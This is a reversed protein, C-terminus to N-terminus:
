TRRHYRLDGTPLTTTEYRQDHARHHHFNCLLVADDLDTHGGQSWPKRHHAECWTARISCHEARCEQDRLRLAKRQAPSFLRRTRGLDLVESNAGLVVPIIQADCALRRVASASLPEGGIMTGTGLENRLSELSITVMVTTADGGHAPLRAPDLHELLAGFAQGLQQHHPIRDEDGSIADPHKRPSTSAHLYTLLRDRDLEPHVITTRALGDGILRTRLSTKARAQQEQNQLRKAEEAEAIEPAVVELLHGGLRRLEAPRFQRACPSWRPRPGHWCNPTSTTPFIMSCRSLSRRRPKPSWVRPWRPAVVATWRRDLAEALRADARGVPFDARTVSALWAGVDRAGADARADEAVAVVRLRLEATMAELRALETVATEKEAPILFVPQADRVSRVADQAVLVASLIPHPSPMLEAVM